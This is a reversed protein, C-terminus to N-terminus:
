PVTVIIKGFQDNSELYHHAKGIAALDFTRSVVPALSGARLGAQIFHKARHLRAENLTVESFIFTRTNRGAFDPAVPLPIPNPDLFGYVILGGDPAVAQVLTSLSPGAIPDVALDVGRGGTLSRVRDVLDEDDTTIVHSAGADLLRQKKAATRTTAIPVAGLHNAIQIAALGVSSSAATVLVTDGPRIGGIEVLLGYGTTYAMWLAAGTVADVTEPRHVVASAPIVIQEGYTGYETMLFAPVTSVPDGPAFDTVGAGVADVIGAAEYGLRASPLVPRYIYAGARFLAEARNLGIAEVRIRLEGPGPENIPVDELQLVEPGGLEHFLVTRPM